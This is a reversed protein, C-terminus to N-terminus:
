SYCSTIIVIIIIIIIIFEIPLENWVAKMVTSRALGTPTQIAAFAIYTEERFCVTRRQSGGLAM